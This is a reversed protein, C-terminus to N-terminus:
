SSSIFKIIKDRLTVDNMREADIYLADTASTILLNGRINKQIYESPGDWTIAKPEVEEEAGKRRGRRRRSPHYAGPPPRKYGVSLYVCFRFVLRKWAQGSTKQPSISSGRRRKRDRETEKQRKRDRETETQTHWGEARDRDRSENMETRKWTLKPAM